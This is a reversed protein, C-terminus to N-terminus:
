WLEPGEWEFDLELGFVLDDVVELSRRWREFAETKAGGGAGAGNAEGAEVGRREEGEGEGPEAGGEEVM